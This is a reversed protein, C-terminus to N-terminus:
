GFLSPLPVGLLYLTIVISLTSLTGILLWKVKFDNVVIRLGIVENGFSRLSIEFLDDKRPQEM